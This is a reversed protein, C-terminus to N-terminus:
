CIGRVFCSKNLFAGPALSKRNESCIGSNRVYKGGNRVYISKRAFTPLIPRVSAYGSIGMELGAGM